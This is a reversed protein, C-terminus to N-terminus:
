NEGGVSHSKMLDRVEKIIQEATKEEVVEQKKQPTYFKDFPIFSEKTFNPYVSVYLQYAEEEHKKKHAENLLRGIQRVKTKM